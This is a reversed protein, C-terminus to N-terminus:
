TITSTSQRYQLLMSSSDILLTSVTGVNALTQIRIQLKDDGTDIRTIWLRSGNRSLSTLVAYNFSEEVGTTWTNGGDGSIQFRISGDGKSKVDLNLTINLVNIIGIDEIDYSRSFITTYTNNSVDPLDFSASTGTHDTPNTGRLSAALHSIFLTELVTNVVTGLEAM